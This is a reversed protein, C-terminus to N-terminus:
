LNNLKFKDLQKTCYIYTRYDEQWKEYDIESLQFEIYSAYNDYVFSTTTYGLKRKDDPYQYNNAWGYSLWDAILKRATTRTIHMENVLQTITVPKDQLYSVVMWNAFFFNVRSHNVWRQIATDKRTQQMSFIKQNRLAFNQCLEKLAHDKTETLHLPPGNQWNRRGHALQINNKDKGKLTPNMGLGERNKELQDQLGLITNKM